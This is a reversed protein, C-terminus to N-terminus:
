QQSLNNLGEFHFRSHVHYLAISCKYYQHLLCVCTLWNSSLYLGIANQLQFEGDCLVIVTDGFSSSAM